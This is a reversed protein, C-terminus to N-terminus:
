YKRQAKVTRLVLPIPKLRAQELFVGIRYKGAEIMRTWMCHGKAQIHEGNDLMEIDIDLESGCPLPKDTFLCLGDVSIDFTKTPHPQHIEFDIYNLPINVAFRPHSRKEKFYDPQM